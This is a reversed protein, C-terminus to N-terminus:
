KTEKKDATWKKLANYVVENKDVAMVAYFIPLSLPILVTSATASAIKGGTSKMESRKYSITFLNPLDLYGLYFAGAAIALTKKV